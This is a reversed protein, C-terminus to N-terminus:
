LSYSGVKNFERGWKKPFEVLHKESIGKKQVSNEMNRINSRKGWTIPQVRHAVSGYIYIKGSLVKM